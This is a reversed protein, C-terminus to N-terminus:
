SRELTLELRHAGRDLRIQGLPTQEDPWALQGNTSTVLRGDVRLELHDVFSGGVSVRYVGSRSVSFTRTLTGGSTPWVTGPKAGTVWGAPHAAAALSLITSRARPVALVFGGRGALRAVSRVTRCAPVAAPQLGSGLAVHASIPPAAVQREWVDYYRGRWVLAYASPPRSAAPSRRLVLTRYALVSSLQFADIDAAGGKPLLRGDDLPDARTRLESAGEPDLDRLFHRVGYPEYETMLAPGDGAFRAGITELEALRGRPAISAGRYALANSWGIGAALVVLAAIGLSRSRRELLVAAGAGALLVFAPSATAMAKAEIWPSARAALVAVAGVAGLGYVAVAWSHRRCASVLMGGACVVIVGLIASSLGPSSPGLRFDGTPWVGLVQVLDLRRPLNGMVDASSFSTVNAARLVQTAAALSPAALALAAAAGLLYVRRLGKAAVHLVLALSLPALWIAGGLSLAGVLAACASACAIADVPATERELVGRSHAAVLAVLSAAVIEKVGGWLVYGFLLAPQAALFAVLARLRRGLVIGDLLAYLALALVSAAFAMYPQYLWAVDQRIFTHGLAIPAFSGTPYGAALNIRLAAEYTSPALGALSRGHTALRDAMGLFTATDDLKIYGTFTAAGSLVVPAGFVAFTGGACTFPALSARGPRRARGAAGAAALAAVAAPAFRATSAASTMLEEVVVVVAFGTPLVLVPTLPSRGLVEVLSGCGFSLVALLLPFAVWALALAAM